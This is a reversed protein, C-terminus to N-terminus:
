TLKQNADVALSNEVALDAMGQERSTIELEEGRKYELVKYAASTVVDAFWGFNDVVVPEEAAHPDTLISYMLLMMTAHGPTSFELSLTIKAM